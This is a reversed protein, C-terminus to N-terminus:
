YQRERMRRQWALLRRYERYNRPKRVRYYRVCRDGPWCRVVVAVTGPPPSSARRLRRRIRRLRAKQARRADRQLKKLRVRADRESQRAARRKVLSREQPRVRPEPVTRRVPRRVAREQADPSYVSSVRSREEEGVGHSDPSQDRRAAYEFEARAILGRTPLPPITINSRPNSRGRDSLTRRALRPKPPTVKDDARGESSVVPATRDDTERTAAPKRNIVTVRSPVTDSLTETTTSAGGKTVDGTGQLEKAEPESARSTVKPGPERESKGGRTASPKEVPVPKVIVSTEGDEDPTVNPLARGFLPNNRSFVRAQGVELGDGAANPAVGDADSALVPGAFLLGAAITSLTAVQGIKEVVILACSM